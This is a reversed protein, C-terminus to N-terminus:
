RQEKVDDRLLAQNIAMGAEAGESTAVVVFQAEKSADGAVYLGPVDTAECKGTDVAGKETFRCGLREALPSRQRQDGCFFLARREIAPGGAFVVRELWGGQGELRIVPEQRVAIGAAALRTNGGEPLGDAQGTCLVLDSTWRTLGLALAVGSEGSGYVAVPQGRWEWGDCYPCHHVSTGYLETLGELRPLEDMVGTALLLTRGLLQTGDSCIVRFGGPERLADTVEIHCFEVTDYRRLEERAIRYFDAPAAGDRTLYGHMARSRWNRQEGVDCVVVRRLCRGLILAASLGAPGGGVIVCDYNM